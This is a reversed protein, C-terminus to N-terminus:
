QGQRAQLVTESALINDHSFFAVAPAQLRPRRQHPGTMIRKKLCIMLNDGQPARQSRARSHRSCATILYVASSASPDM